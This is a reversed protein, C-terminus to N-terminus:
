DLEDDINQIEKFMDEKLTPDLLKEVEYQM